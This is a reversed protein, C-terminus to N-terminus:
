IITKANLEHNLQMSNCMAESIPSMYLILM